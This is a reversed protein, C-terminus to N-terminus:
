QKGGWKVWAGALLAGIFATTLFQVITKGITSKASRFSDLLGRLERVDDGARDDHLGVDHLARKAGREAARELILEFAESKLYDDDQDYKRLDRAM